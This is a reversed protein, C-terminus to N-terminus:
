RTPAHACMHLYRSHTYPMCVCVHVHICRPSCTYMHTFMNDVGLADRCQKGEHSSSEKMSAAEDESVQSM